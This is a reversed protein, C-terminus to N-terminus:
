NEIAAQQQVPKLMPITVKPLRLRAADTTVAERWFAWAHFAAQKSFSSVAAQDDFFGQPCVYDVAFKHVLRALLDKDSIDSAAPPSPIPVGPKLISVEGRTFYRLVYIVTDPPGSLTRTQMLARQEVAFSHQCAVEAMVQGPTFEGDVTCSIETLFVDDIECVSVARAGPSALSEANAM